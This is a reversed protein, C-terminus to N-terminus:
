QKRWEIGIPAIFNLSPSRAGCDGLGQEVTVQVRREALPCRDVYISADFAAGARGNIRLGRRAKLPQSSCASTRTPGCMAWSIVRRSGICDPYVMIRLDPV